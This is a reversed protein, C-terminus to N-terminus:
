RKKRRRKNPTRHTTGKTLGVSALLMVGLGGIMIQMPSLGALPFATGGDPITISSPLSSAKPLVIVAPKMPPTMSSGMLASWTNSGVIGDITLGKDSQFRQVAQKTLPGYVGDPATLLYGAFALAAQIQKVDNGTSGIQYETAMGLM